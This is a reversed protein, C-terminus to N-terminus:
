EPKPLCSGEFIKMDEAPDTRKWEAWRVDCTNRVKNTMPDFMQYTDGSHEDSYGVMICKVTSEVWKTQIMKWSTVYGICGFEILQTPKLHGPNGDFLDNPIGKVQQNWAMNSLKTAM